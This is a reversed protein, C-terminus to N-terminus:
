FLLLLFLTLIRVHEIFQMWLEGSRPSHSSVTSFSPVFECDFAVKTKKKEEDRGNLMLIFILIIKITAKQSNEGNSCNM